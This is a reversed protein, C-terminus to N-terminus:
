FTISSILVVILFVITVHIIPERTAQKNLINLSIDSLVYKLLCCACSIILSCCLISLNSSSFLFSDSTYTVRLSSLTIISERFFVNTLTSWFISLTSLFKSFIESLSYYVSLRNHREKKYRSCIFDTCVKQIHDSTTDLVCHGDDFDYYAGGLEQSFYKCNDCCKM